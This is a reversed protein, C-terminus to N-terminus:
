EHEKALEASTQELTGNLTANNSGEGSPLGLEANVAEDILFSFIGGCGSAGPATFTDNVLTNNKIVLIGFEARSTIEGVKGKLAGATGTTLNIVIPSSESGIYCESGLFLNDLKVKVPLSLATGEELLLADESLGISSAPAALETTATVGLPGKNIFENFLEQLFKPLFSPAIIGLLGGPVPQPTKSLTEAGEAGVFKLIGHKENVFGGQLTIPNVIPVGKKGITIEGSETKAVLCGSLPTHALPCHAFIEYEGKPAALAPSAVSLAAASVALVMALLLTQKRISALRRCYNRTM